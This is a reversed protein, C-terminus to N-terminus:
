PTCQLHVGQNPVLEASATAMSGSSSVHYNISLGSAQALWCTMYYIHGSPVLLSAIGDSGVTTASFFSSTSAGAALTPPITAGSAVYDFTSVLVLSGAPSAIVNITAPWGRIKFDSLSGVPPLNVVASRIPMATETRTVAPAIYYNVNQTLGNFRYYGNSDSKQTALLKNWSDRLEVPVGALTPNAGEAASITGCVSLGGCASPGYVLVRHNSSDAVFLRQTSPDYASPGDPYGMESAGLATGQTSFDPKGLVYAANMGDTIGGSLDFILVRHDNGDTVFLNKTSPDYTSGDPALLSGPTPPTSQMRSTLNWQGLVHTASMGNTIGSTLDFVLVRQNTSDSVFLQKAVPVYTAGSTHMLTSGDMGATFTNFNNQGLVNAAHMGSTIGGSLDYVLV